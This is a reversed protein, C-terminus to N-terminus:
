LPALTLRLYVGNWPALAFGACGFARFAWGIYRAVSIGMCGERLVDRCSPLLRIRHRAALHLPQFLAPLPQPPAFFLRRRSGSAAHSRRQGLPSCSFTRKRRAAPSQWPRATTPLLPLLASSATQKATLSFSSSTMKCPRGPAFPAFRKWFLPWAQVM